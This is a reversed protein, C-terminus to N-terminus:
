VAKRGAFIDVVFAILALIVAYRIFEGGPIGPIFLGLIGVFLLVLAITRLTSM